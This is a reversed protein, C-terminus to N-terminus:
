PQVSDKKDGFLGLMSRGWSRRYGSSKRAPVKEEVGVGREGGREEM